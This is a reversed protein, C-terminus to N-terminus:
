IYVILFCLLLQSIYHQFIFYMERSYNLILIFVNYHLISYIMFYIIYREISKPLTICFQRAITM